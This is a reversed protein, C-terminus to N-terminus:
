IYLPITKFPFAFKSRFMGVSIHLGGGSTIGFIETLLFRFPGNWKFESRFKRFRQCLPFCGRVEQDASGRDCFYISELEGWALPNKAVSRKRQCLEGYHVRAATQATSQRANRKHKRYLPQACLICPGM